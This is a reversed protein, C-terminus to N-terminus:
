PHGRQMMEDMTTATYGPPVEFLARNLSETTVSKFTTTVTSSKMTRPDFAQRTTKLAFGKGMVASMSQAMPGMKATLKQMGDRMAQLTKYDAAPVGFATPPEDSMCMTSTARGGVSMQMDKCRHGAVTETTGLDKMEVQMGGQMAAMPNGAPAGGRAAMMKEMRARQEPTMNAMAAQMKQHADDMEGQHAAMQAQAAQMQQQSQAQQAGIQGAAKDDFVLYQKKEPMFVSMTNAASDYLAFGQHTGDSFEMRVKGDKVFLQSVAQGADNVSTIHTDALAPAAAALLALLISTRLM